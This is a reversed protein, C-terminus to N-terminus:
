QIEMNVLLIDALIALFVLVVMLSHFVENKIRAMLVFVGILLFSSLNDLAFLDTGLILPRFSASAVVTLVGVWFVPTMKEYYFSKLNAGQLQDPFVLHSVLFLGVPGGLMVLLGIFTWSPTARVEWIEWWTQLLALYIVAIFVSHVWYVTVSEINRITRAIGSLLEALGFGIILSVLVMLFEFLSM